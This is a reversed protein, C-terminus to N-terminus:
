RLSDKAMRLAEELFAEVTEFETGENAKAEKLLRLTEEQLLATARILDIRTINDEIKVYMDAKTPTTYFALIPKDNKNNKPKM